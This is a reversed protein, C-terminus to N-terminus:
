IRYKIVQGEYLIVCTNNFVKFSKLKNKNVSLLYFSGRYSGDTISYKDIVSNYEFAQGDENDAKLKSIVYLLGNSVSIFYNAM